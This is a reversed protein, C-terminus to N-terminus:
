GAPPAIANEGQMVVTTVKRDGSTVRRQYFGQSAPHTGAPPAVSHGQNTGCAPHLGAQGPKIVTMMNGQHDFDAHLISIQSDHQCQLM